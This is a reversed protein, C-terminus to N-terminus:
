VTAKNRLVAIYLSKCTKIDVDAPVYPDSDEDLLDIETFFVENM